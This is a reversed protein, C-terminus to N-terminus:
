SRVSSTEEYPSSVSALWNGREALLDIAVQDIVVLIEDRGPKLPVECQGGTGFKGYCFFFLIPLEDCRTHDTRRAQCNIQLRKTVM